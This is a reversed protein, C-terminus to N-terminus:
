FDFAVVRYDARALTSSCAQMLQISGAFGLAVIVASGVGNTLESLNRELMSASVVILALTSATCIWCIL